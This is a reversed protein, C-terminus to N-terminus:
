LWTMMPIAHRAGVLFDFCSLLCVDGELVMYAEEEGGGSRIGEMSSLM